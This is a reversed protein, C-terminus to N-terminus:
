SAAVSMGAIDLRVDGLEALHIQFKMKSDAVITEKLAPHIYFEAQVSSFEDFMEVSKYGFTKGGEDTDAYLSMGIERPASSRMFLAFSVNEYNLVADADFLFEVMLWATDTRNIVDLSLVKRAGESSAPRWTQDSQFARAEIETYEKPYAFFFKDAVTQYPALRDRAQLGLPTFLSDFGLDIRDGEMYTDIQTKEIPDTLTVVAELEARLARVNAELYAVRKLIRQLHLDTEM